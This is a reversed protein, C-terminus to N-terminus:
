DWRIEYDLPSELVLLDLLPVEFVARKGASSGGRVASIPGPFDILARIKASGIEEAVGRGYISAVLGLYEGKSLTEGTAVPAMLVSLYDVVERSILALVKPGSTRDLSLALRGGSPSQEYVIFRNGGQNGPLALFDDIRSIELPGEIASPSTNTFSVGAIGPAAAMSRAIAPGDIVPRNRAAEPGLSVAAFSRILAATRSELSAQIRLDGSGDTDLSGTITAACSMFLVQFSILCLFFTIKM